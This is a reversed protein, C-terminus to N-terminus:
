EGDRIVVSKQKKALYARVAESVEDEADEYIEVAEPAEAPAIKKARAEAERQGLKYAGLAICAGIIVATIIDM